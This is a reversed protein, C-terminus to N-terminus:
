LAFRSNLDANVVVKLLWVTDSVTDSLLYVADDGHYCRCLPGTKASVERLPRM